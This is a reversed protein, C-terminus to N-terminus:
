IGTQLYKKSRRVSRDARDPIGTDELGGVRWNGVGYLVRHLRRRKRWEWWRLRTWEYAAENRERALQQLMAAYRDRVARTTIIEYREFEIIPPGNMQSLFDSM